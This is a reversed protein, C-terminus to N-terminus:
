PYVEEEKSEELQAKDLELGMDKDRTDVFSGVLCYEIKRIQSGVQVVLWLSQEDVSLSRLQM